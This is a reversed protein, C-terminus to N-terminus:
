SPPRSTSSCWPLTCIASRFLPSAVARLDLREVTGSSRHQGRRRQAHLDCYAWRSATGDYEGGREGGIIDQLNVRPVHRVTHRSNGGSFPYAEDEETVLRPPEHSHSPHSRAKRHCAPLSAPQIPEERWCLQQRYYILLLPPAAHPRQTSSVLLACCHRLCCCRATAAGVQQSPTSSPALRPSPEFCPWQDATDPPSCLLTVSCAVAFAVAFRYEGRNGVSARTCELDHRWRNGEDADATAAVNLRIQSNRLHASKPVIGGWRLHLCTCSWVLWLM